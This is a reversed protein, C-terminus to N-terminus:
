QKEKHFYRPNRSKQQGRVIPLLRFDKRDTFFEMMKKAEPNVHFVTPVSYGEAADIIALPAVFIDETWEEPAEIDRLREAVEEALKRFRETYVKSNEQNFVIHTLLQLNGDAENVKILFLGGSPYKEPYLLLKTSHLFSTHVARAVDSPNKEKFFGQAHASSLACMLIALVLLSKLLSTRKVLM